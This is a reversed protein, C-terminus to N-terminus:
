ALVSGRILEEGNFYERFVKQLFLLVALGILGKELVDLSFNGDHFLQQVRIYQPEELYQVIRLYSRYYNITTKHQPFPGSM